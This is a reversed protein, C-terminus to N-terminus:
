GTSPNGIQTVTGPAPRDELSSRLMPILPLLNFSDNKKAILVVLAIDFSQVNQQNQMRRDYTVLVDFDLEALRLLEGNAVSGGGMKAVTAVEHGRLEHRLGVHVNEDLLIKM